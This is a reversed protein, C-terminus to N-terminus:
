YRPVNPDVRQSWAEIGGELNTADYGQQQLYHCAQASRVGTHCMVVIPTKKNLENHRIQIAALPIHIHPVISALAIEHHERVDLLIFNENEDQRKKLAIVDTKKM